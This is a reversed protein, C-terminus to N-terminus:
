VRCSSRGREEVPVVVAVVAVVYPHVVVYQDIWRSRRTHHAVFAILPCSVGGIVIEIWEEYTDITTM